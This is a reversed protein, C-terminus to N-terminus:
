GRPLIRRRESGSEMITMMGRHDNRMGITDLTTITLIGMISGLNLIVRDNPLDGDDKKKPRTDIPIELLTPIVITLRPPNMDIINTATRDKVTTTGIIRKTAITITGEKEITAGRAIMAIAERETTTAGKEIIAAVVTTEGTVIMTMIVIVIMTTITTVPVITRIDGIMSRPLVTTTIDITTATTTVIAENIAEIM